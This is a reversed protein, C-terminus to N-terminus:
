NRVYECRRSRDGGRGGICRDPGGRGDLRDNGGRGLLVNPGSGGVLLDRGPSGEIKETGRAIRGAACAGAEPDLVRGGIRARVYVGDNRVRAFSASDTAGGGGYFRDGECPQGGVMLDDGGGGIMTAVGSDHRPHFINVGFLADDGGGGELRDPDGDDGGYLTDEGRGGRLRDSGAGGEITVEVGDPLSPAVAVRDNGAGLSVLLSGIRRSGGLVLAPGVGGSVFLRRNRLGIRLRDEGPSGSVAVGNAGCRRVALSEGFCGDEGPGGIVNEIRVLRENEAGSVRGRDPDVVIPGGATRYSATDHGGAGGDIRDRGVGGALADHSGSGGDVVDDGMGGDVDDRAGAGGRVTDNGSEGRVRDRGAGGRVDDSGRGGQVLDAGAKGNLVDKGRGGDIRDRGAGGCIVDNGGGGRILNPGGGAVIVDPGRRGRILRDNSVLDATKGACRPRGAEPTGARVVFFGVAAMLAVAAIAYRRWRLSGEM